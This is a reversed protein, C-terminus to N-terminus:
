EQKLNMIAITSSILSAIEITSYQTALDHRLTEFAATAEKAVLWSTDTRFRILNYPIHITGARQKAAVFLM